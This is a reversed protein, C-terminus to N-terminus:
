RGLTMASVADAYGRYRPDARFAADLGIWRRSRLRDVPDLLIFTSTV